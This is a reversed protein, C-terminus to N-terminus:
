YKPISQGYPMVIDDPTGSIGDRGNSWIIIPPWRDKAEKRLAINIRNGQLDLIPNDSRACDTGQVNQMVFDVEENTLFHWDAHQDALERTQKQRWIVDTLSAICSQYAGEANLQWIKYIGFVGCGVLLLFVALALQRSRLAM